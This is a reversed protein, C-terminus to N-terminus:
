LPTDRCPMRFMCSYRKDIDDGGGDAKPTIHDTEMKFGCFRHCICCRRHCAVLLAAVEDRNFAM